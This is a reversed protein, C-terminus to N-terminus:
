WGLIQKSVIEKLLRIKQEQRRQEKGEKREYEKVKREWEDDLKKQYWESVEILKDHYENEYETTFQEYYERARQCGIDELKSLAIEAFGPYTIEYGYIKMFTSKYLKMDPKISELLKEKTPLEADQRCQGALMDDFLGDQEAQAIGQCFTDIEEQSPKRLYEAWDKPDNTWVIASHERAM